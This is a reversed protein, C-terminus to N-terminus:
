ESPFQSQMTLPGGRAGQIYLLDAFAQQSPYGDRVIFVSGISRGARQTTWLLLRSHEFLPAQGDPRQHIGRQVRVETPLRYRRKAHRARENTPTRRAADHPGPHQSNLYPRSRLGAHRIPHHRSLKRPARDSTSRRSTSTGTIRSIRGNKRKRALIRTVVRDYALRYKTFATQLTFYNQLPRTTSSTQPM